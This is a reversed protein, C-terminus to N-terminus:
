MIEALHPLMLMVMRLSKPPLNLLLTMTALGFEMSSQSIFKELLRKKTILSSNHLKRMILLTLTLANM